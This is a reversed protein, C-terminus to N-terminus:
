LNYDHVVPADSADISARLTSEANYKDPVWQPRPPEGPGRPPPVSPDWALIEVRYKGVPVGGKLDVRYHGQRIPAITLPGNTGDQPIFRIQGDEVPRDQLKVAGSVVVRTLGDGGCGVACCAMGAIAILTCLRPSGTGRNNTVFANVM